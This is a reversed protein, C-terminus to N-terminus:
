IGTAGVCLHLFASLISCLLDITAPYLVDFCQQMVVFVECFKMAVDTTNKIADRFIARMLVCFATCLMWFAADMRTCAWAFVNGRMALVVTCALLLALLFQAILVSVVLMEVIPPVSTNWLRFFM